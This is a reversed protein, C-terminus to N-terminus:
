GRRVREGPGPNFDRLRQGTTRDSPRLTGVLRALRDRLVPDLGPQALSAALARQLVKEQAPDPRGFRQLHGQLVEAAAVRVPVPRKGDLLVTILTKQAQPSALTGTIRLADILAGNSLPPALFVNMVANGAPRVDFGRLEGAAMRALWRLAGEAYEKRETKSLPPMGAEQLREELRTQLQRADSLLNASVVWVNRYKEVYRRLDDERKITEEEYRETLIRLREELEKKRRRQDALVPDEKVGLAAPGYRELQRLRAELRPRLTSDLVEIQTRLARVRDLLYRSDKSDPIAALLVPLRRVDRDARLQGLTFALGPNPLSSDLLVLDIDARAKLRRLADRGTSALIADGGSAKVAEGVDNRLGEDALAVLIRPRDSAAADPVLANKLIEVIRATAQTSAAGPISLISEVAAMQVRRDGYHLARVLAPEGRAVAQLARVDALSGLARVAALIVPTREHRLARELVAVILDPNITSLLEVLSPKLAGLPKEATGPAYGKDLLLSLRLIQAPEYRPDIDLAQRTFRLVFYEEAKSASFTTDEFLKKNKEDWRWIGVRRPDAFRVRHEYYREAEDTLAEKALPLKSPSSLNLLVALANQASRRVEASRQVPGALPWLYPAPDVGKSKLLIFDKRRRLTEILNSRLAADDIDFAALLPPVTDIGFQSMASVLVGREEVPRLRLQEVLAPTAFAGSRALEIRAFANEEPTQYLNNIFQEIRKPDSLHARVATTMQEILSNVDDRAQREKDKNESWRPVTRLRLFPSIREKEYLQILEPAAPKKQLMAHLHQAALDYRGVELEFKMADWFEATNTPKRFFRRYDFEEEKKDKPQAPAQALPLLLLLATIALVM